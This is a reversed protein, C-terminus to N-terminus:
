EYPVSVSLAVSHTLFTGCNENIVKDFASQDLFLEGNFEATFIYVFDGVV